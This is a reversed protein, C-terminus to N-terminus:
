SSSIGGDGDNGGGGSGVDGADDDGGGVDGADDDGGGVDGADDDGTGSTIVVIGM